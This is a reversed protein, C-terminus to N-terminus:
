GELPHVVQHSSVGLALTADKLTQTAADVQAQADTTDLGGDIAAQLAAQADQLAQTDATVADIAQQLSTSADVYSQDASAKVTAEAETQQASALYIANKGVASNPNAHDLANASAHSSNMGKLESAVAGNSTGDATGDETASVDTADTADTEDTSAQSHAAGTASSGRASGGAHSANSAKDTSASSAHSSAQSHSSGGNSDSKGNNALVAGPLMALCVTSAFITTL